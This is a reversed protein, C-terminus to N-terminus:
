WELGKQAPCGFSFPHRIELIESVLDAMALLAPSAERGTVVVHRGHKRTALSELVEAEALFGCNIPYTLEDLVLLDHVGDSLRAHALAWAECAQRRHEDAGNVGRIFGSGLVHWDLQPALRAAMLCEGTDTRSKVFQIVGVRMGHGLARFVMGLAATTKGKGGGTHVILLGKGSM